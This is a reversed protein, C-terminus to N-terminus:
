EYRLAVVPDVSSGKASTHFCSLGSTAVLLLIVGLLCRMSHVTRFGLAALVRNLTSGDSTTGSLVGAWRREDRLYCM